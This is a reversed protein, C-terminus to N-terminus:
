AQFYHENTSWEKQDIIMKAPYFNSFQYNAKKKDYFLVKNDIIEPQNNTEEM